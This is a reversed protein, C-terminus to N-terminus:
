LGLMAPRVVALCIWKFKSREFLNAVVEGIASFENLLHRRNKTTPPAISVISLLTHNLLGLATEGM